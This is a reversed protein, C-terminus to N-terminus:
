ANEQSVTSQADNKEATQPTIFEIKGRANSGRKQLVEKITNRANTLTGLVDILNINKKIARRALFIKGEAWNKKKGLKLKRARAVDECFQNYLDKNLNVAYDRQQTTLDPSYPNFLGKYAGQVLVTHNVKTELGNETIKTDRHRSIALDSGIEAVMATPNAVIKEAGCAAYYCGGTCADAILSVVPKKKNAIRLENYIASAMGLEINYNGEVNYLIAAVDKRTVYEDLLQYFTWLDKKAVDIVGVKIGKCTM